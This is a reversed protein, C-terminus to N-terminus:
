KKIFKNIYDNVGAELSIFKHKYGIKRLNKNDSRTMYQYGNKIKKPMPIYNVKFDYNLNKFIIKSLDLFTRSIGTGVNYIGTKSKNKLFWNVIKVCDDIYIFDRSQMGNAIEPHYSKYLNITKNAKIQKYFKPIPSMMFGKHLENPGYVNFFKLGVPKSSLNKHLAYKELIYLDFLHKSLGYLNIPHLKIFKLFENDDSFGLTGKGYTAASSAYIMKIKYKECSKFLKKSFNLNNEILLKVRKEATSSIAGMHIIADIKKYNKDIFSFLSNPSIIKKYKINKLNKSKHIHDIRDIIIIDNSSNELSKAINSGIFGAGGTILHM